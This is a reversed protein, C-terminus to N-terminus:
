FFFVFRDHKVCSRFPMKVCMLTETLSLAIVSHEEWWVCCDKGTSDILFLCVCVGWAAMILREESTLKPLSAWGNGHVPSSPWSWLLQFCSSRAAWLLQGPMATFLPWSCKQEDFQSWATRDMRLLDIVKEIFLM